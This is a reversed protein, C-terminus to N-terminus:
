QPSAIRGCGLGGASCAGTRRASKFPFSGDFADNGPTLTAAIHATMVGLLTAHVDVWLRIASVAYAPWGMLEM